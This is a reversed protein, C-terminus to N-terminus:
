AKGEKCGCPNKRADEKAEAILASLKVRFKEICEDCGEVIIVDRAEREKGLQVNHLASRM